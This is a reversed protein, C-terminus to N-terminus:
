ITYDPKISHMFARTTPSLYRTKRTVMGYRREEFLHNLSYVSLRSHDTETLTFDDMITIGLGLSVFEKVSEFNNLIMRVDLQLNERAFVGEILPTITSGKPFFIFPQSVIDRLHLPQETDAFPGNKQALLVLNTSFLDNYLLGEPVSGLSLFGFDAEASRIQDLIFNAGGGHINFKVDPHLKLFNHLYPPLYSHIVAHTAVIRITGSLNTRTASLDDNLSEIIEFIAIAKEFLVRGEPTLLLNKSSRDFLTVGYKEELCKVQHSVAPQNRGIEAAAASFSGTKAVHYFGRLWQVYDGQIEEIM